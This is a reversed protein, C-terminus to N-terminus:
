VAGHRRASTTIAGHEVGNGGDEGAGEACCEAPIDKKQEDARWRNAIRGDTDLETRDTQGDQQTTTMMRMTM